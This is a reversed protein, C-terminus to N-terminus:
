KPIKAQFAGMVQQASVGRLRIRKRRSGAGSEIVASSLPVGLQRALYRRLEDNAEGEVPPAAVRFKLAGNHVGVFETRSAKPQVYVTLVVGDPSDQVIPHTLFSIPAPRHAM